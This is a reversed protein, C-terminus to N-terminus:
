LEGEMASVASRREFPERRDLCALLLEKLGDLGAESPSWRGREYRGFGPFARLAPGFTDDFRDGFLREYDELEVGDRTRLAMMIYEFRADFGEVLEERGSGVPDAVYAALEAANEIRLFRGGGARLTASASPGLALWGAMSWYRRNHECEQGPTAWNSLEYREFGAARLTEAAAGYLENLRGRDPLDIEGAAVARALPSGESLGLEYLSIHGAGLGLVFRLDAALGEPSQAPLGFIFDASWRRPWAAAFRELGRRVSEPAGRRRITARVPAELSQVGLSVRTLPSDLASALFDASLDEPNAEISYEAGARPAALRLVRELAAPPLASPTGGGLYSTAWAGTAAAAGFRGRLAQAHAALADLWEAADLELRSGPM